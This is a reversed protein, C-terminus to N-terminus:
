SMVLEPTVRSDMPPPFFDLNGLLHIFYRAEGHKYIKNVHPYCVLVCVQFNLCYFLRSDPDYSPFKCLGKM